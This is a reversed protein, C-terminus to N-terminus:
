IDIGLLTKARQRDLIRYAPYYRDRFMLSHHRAPYGLERVETTFAAHKALSFPLREDAIWQATQEWVTVFEAVTAPPESAFDVMATVFEELFQENVKGHRWLERLHVRGVTGSPHIPEWLLDNAQQSHEKVRLTEEELYALARVRDPILHGIGLHAQHILKYLDPIEMHPWRATASILFPLWLRGKHTM